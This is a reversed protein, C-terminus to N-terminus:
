GPASADYRHRLCGQAISPQSIMCEYENKQYSVGIMTGGASEATEGECGSRGGIEGPYELVNVGRHKEKRGVILATAFCLITNKKKKVKELEENRQTNKHKRIIIIIIIITIIIYLTSNFITRSVIHESYNREQKLYSVPIRKAWSLSDTLAV